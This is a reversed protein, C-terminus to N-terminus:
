SDPRERSPRVPTRTRKSRSTVGPNRGIPIMPAHDTTADWDAISQKLKRAINAYEPNDIVNRMQWRDGAMDFLEAMPQGYNEYQIYAHTRTRALVCRGAARGPYGIESFIVDRWDTAKGQSLAVLSTGQMKDSIPQGTLECLTPLLDVLGVLEDVVVGSPVVGPMRLIMPIHVTGDYNLTFKTWLGHEGAMEGHDATYVVVTNDALGLSDLEDLVRGINYDIQSVFGYYRALMERHQESTLMGYQERAVDMMRARSALKSPNNAPLTIEAPDYMNAWRKSPIIPTHPGYFSLWACFPRDKNATIFKITEAAWYGTPHYKNPARSVGTYAKSPQDMKDVSALISPQREAELFEHYEPRDIVVDFGHERPSHMMHHKGITATAYGAQKFIEGVTTEELPEVVHNWRLGHSHAYRGTWITYRSPCCQGTQCFANSFRVGESALRDLVPTKIEPNGSCGLSRVNHQDSMIFLVNVPPDAAALAKSTDSIAVRTVVALICLVLRNHRLTLSM